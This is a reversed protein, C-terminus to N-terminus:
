KLTQNTFSIIPKVSLVKGSSRSIIIQMPENYSVSRGYIMWNDNDLYVQFPEQEAVKDAGYIGNLYIKGVELAVEGSRVFGNPVSTMSNNQCGAMFVMAALCAVSLIVKKM